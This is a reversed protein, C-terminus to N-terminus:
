LESSRATRVRGGSKQVGNIKANFARASADAARQAKMSAGLREASRAAHAHCLAVALADPRTRLSRFNACDWRPGCWRSCRCNQIRGGYGAVSSKVERPSYSHAPDFGAARPWCCWEAFGGGAEAGHGCQDQQVRGEVAM